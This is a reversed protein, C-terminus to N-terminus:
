KLPTHQTIYRLYSLCHSCTWRHVKMNSVKNSMRWLKLTVTCPLLATSKTFFMSYRFGLGLGYVYM